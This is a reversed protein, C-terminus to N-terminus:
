IIINYFCIIIFSTEETCQPLNLSSIIALPLKNWMSTASMRFSMKTIKLRFNGEYIYIYIYIYIIIILNLNAGPNKIM